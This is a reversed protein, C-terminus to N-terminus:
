TRAPWESTQAHDLHCCSVRKIWRGTPAKTGAQRMTVRGHAGGSMRQSVLGRGPKIEVGKNAGEAVGYFSGEGDDAQVGGEERGNM